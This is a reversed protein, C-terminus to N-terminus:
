IKMRKLRLSNMVVSVSSLAMAGGAFYPPLVVGFGPYFVGAALPILILNYAFAWLLNEMIVRRIVKSLKIAQAVGAIGSHMLTIDSAKVAIDTGSRLAIGIDAEALAAADNFGDGVVAVKMGLAKHRLVIQKKEEPFVEAYFESIDLAKAVAEVAARRDGSAIVPAIGMAVLEKVLAPAEPRMSDSLAAYGIFRGSDALLLLSGDVERLEGQIGDPLAIGEEAFWKPSGATIVRDKALRAFIGKGPVVEIASPAECAINWGAAYLRVAEAFPHESKSEASLLLTLFEKETLKWPRLKSVKLRGETITGTKDFIVVDVKSIRELVDGNNILMGLGAARGFGIAVAMPVALGMACPCAVALVAAFVNVARSVDTYYLWFGLATVATLLVFPVFWASIRDVLHQVSSKAAQSEEVAKIIKMLVMDEGVSTASFELAGTKNITGAYVKSGPSKEQPQAEGTLLAEDIASVGNLVAGDVPVQEGPRLAIVDGPLIEDIPFLEEKGDKVRRAFKPAIKFLNTVADAAKSKSRAELWRGLNIFTVLMAVEHWQAHYSMSMVGPFLTIFVGYFFTAGTSLSVLTNMDAARAKLSRLMGAHFHFGCWGWVFAAAMMMTYPSFDYVGGLLLFCTIVLSVLFKKFFMNKERELEAGAINEAKAPSESVALAKYGMEAIKRTIADTTALGPDYSLFATRSPLHVSVRMVGPMGALGSEVRAVCSACHVGELPIVVKKIKIAPLANDM